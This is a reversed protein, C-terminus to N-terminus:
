LHKSLAPTKNQTRFHSAWKLSCIHHRGNSHMQVNTHTHSYRYL